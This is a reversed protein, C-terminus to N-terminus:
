YSAAKIYLPTNNSVYVCNFLKRHKFCDDATFSKVGFRDRLEVAKTELGDNISHYILESCYMSKESEVDFYFDYPLGLFTKAAEIIKYALKDNIVNLRMVAVFDTRMILNQIHEKTVVPAVAHIITEDGVYLAAHKWFGPIVVTSFEGMTRTVIIDGPKIVKLVDLVDQYKMQKKSYPSRILEVLHSFWYIVKRLILTLSFM